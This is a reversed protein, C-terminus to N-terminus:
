RYNEGCKCYDFSSYCITCRHDSNWLWAAEQPTNCEDSELGCENCKVLWSGYDHIMYVSASGCACSFLEDHELPSKGM